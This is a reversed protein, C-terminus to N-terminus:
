GTDGDREKRHADRRLDDPADQLPDLPVVLQNRWNDIVPMFPEHLRTLHVPADGPQDHAQLACPEGDRVRRATCIRGYESSM